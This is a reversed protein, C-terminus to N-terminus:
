ECLQSLDSQSPVKQLNYIKTALVVNNLGKGSGGTIKGESPCGIQTDLVSSNPQQCTQSIYEPGRSIICINREYEKTKLGKGMRFTFPLHSLWQVLSSQSKLLLSLSQRM